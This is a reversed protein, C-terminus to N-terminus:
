LNSYKERMVARSVRKMANNKQEFKKRGNGSSKRLEGSCKEIMVEREKGERRWNKYCGNMM